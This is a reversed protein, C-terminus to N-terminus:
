KSEDKKGKVYKQLQPPVKGKKSSKPKSKKAGIKPDKPDKDAYDPVGDGDEDPKKNKDKKEGLVAHPAVIGFRTMLLSNLEKNRWENLPMSDREANLIRQKTEALGKNKLIRNEECAKCDCDENHKTPENKAESADMTEM